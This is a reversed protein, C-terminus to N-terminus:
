PQGPRAPEQAGATLIVQAHRAGPPDPGINHLLATLAPGADLFVRIHGEPEALAGGSPPAAWSVGIQNYGLNRVVLDM